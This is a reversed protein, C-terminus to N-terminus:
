DNLISRVSINKKSKALQQLIEVICGFVIVHDNRHQQLINILIEVSNPHCLVFDATNIDAALHRIIFLISKVLQQHPQSRNCSKLQSYLIPLTNGAILVQRCEESLRTM